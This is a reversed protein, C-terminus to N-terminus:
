PLLAGTAALAKALLTEMDGARHLMPLELGVPCAAPLAALFDALPLVGEGPALRNHRADDFYSPWFGLQPSDCIQAYPIRAPDAGALEAASGGSAFLHMSDVLVGANAAGSAAVFALADALNGVPTHPMFEVTAPLGHAAALAAFRAFAALARNREPEIVCANLCVAGLGALLAVDSEAIDQGPLILFGEGLAVAVGQEALADRTAALLAPDDRLSWPVAGPLATIPSPALGIRRCGLRAAMAIQEPPPAGLASIFELALRDPLSM